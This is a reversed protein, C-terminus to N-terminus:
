RAQSRMKGVQAAIFRGTAAVLLGFSLAFAVVLSGLKGWKAAVALVAVVNLQAPWAQIATILMLNEMWDLATPVLLLVFLNKELAIRYGRESAHRLAFATVTALMLGAFLPFFYDVATFVYYLRYAEDTYGALQEFIMKPTLSNQMDFPVAGGAADPFDTTIRQLVTMTGIQGAVIILFKWWSHSCAIIFRNITSLM